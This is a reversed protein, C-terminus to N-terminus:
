KRLKYLIIQSIIRLQDSFKWVVKWGVKTYFRWVCCFLHFHVSFLARASTSGNVAEMEGIEYVDMPRLVFPHCTFASPNLSFREEGLCSRRSSLWPIRQAACHFISKIRFCYPFEKRALVWAFFREDSVRQARFFRVHTFDFCIVQKTPHTADIFKM